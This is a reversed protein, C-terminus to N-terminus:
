QGHVGARWKPGVDTRTLPKTAPAPAAGASVTNDEIVNPKFSLRDLPPTTEPKVVQVAAKADRSSFIRNGAIRNGEPMLVRQRAPWGSKYSGGVLIDPGANNAFVNSEFVGDKVHGYAPVAGYQTNQRMIPAFKDTLKAVKGHEDVFYEGAFLNLAPDAVGAIYNNRVVHGQGSVRIGATGPRNEGLIINSEITNFNGSRGVIGGITARFTNFRVVNRNSKLSIIEAGEGDAREFLNYEITMFGGDPGLEESDGYASAQIIERGNPTAHPMNEFHSYRVTNRRARDALAIVPGQHNKGTFYCREVTNNPGSFRVWHYRTNFDPPNYNEIATNLLRGLDSRFEIVPNTSQVPETRVFYLGDVVLHPSNIQLYSTGTLKVRGPTHARLIVPKDPTATASFLIHADTWTGDTMEIVDGPKAAAMAKTLEAVNAARVTPPSQATVAPALVSAAVVVAVIAQIIM